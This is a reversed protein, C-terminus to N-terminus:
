FGPPVTFTMREGTIPHLFSISQAHLCMRRYWGGGYLLDGFIPCGLYRGYDNVNRVKLIRSMKNGTLGM